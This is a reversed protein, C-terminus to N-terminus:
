KQINYFANLGEYVAAEDLEDEIRLLQNYKAIRDTRSMSGTKIQGANLAVAIDAITTDETEGSRHSIVVAYGARKAMEVAEFTESLTGIQNIKILIANAVKNEIGKSLRTTNTVFLDDGVLQVTSGLEKTLLRWGDWDNQDLGDEISIIPYKKCLEKYYSVLEKVTLMKKESKLNYKKAKKDYFESSAVDLALKFDKGPVYGANRIAKVVVSLAEENSSLKPAYGGEDGVATNLGQEKLVLKLHHFVESSAQIAQKFTDFAVPVIMIEQFDICWDAHAGGNLINIMPTPLTHGNVGGFYGYLSMNYFNAAAKAVALSVGLVANAGLRSKNPTGDIKCLLKDIVRQKTVDYGIIEPAIVDNVNNVAKTVGKGLFRKNDNDRLEVAEYEGTSAGSPVIARGFCGSETEVEVEITPNGRSDLVERAYIDTIFPM